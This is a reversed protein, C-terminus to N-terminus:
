ALSPPAQPLMCGPSLALRTSGQPLSPPNTSHLNKNNPVAPDFGINHTNFFSPPFTLASSRDYAQYRQYRSTLRQLPAFSCLSPRGPARGGGRSARRRAGPPGGRKSKNSSGDGKKQDDDIDYMHMGQRGWFLGGRVLGCAILRKSRRGMSRPQRMRGGGDKKSRSPDSIVSKRRKKRPLANWADANRRQWFRTATLDPTERQSSRSEGRMFCGGWGVCVCVPWVLWSMIARVGAVVPRCSALRSSPAAAHPSRSCAPCAAARM